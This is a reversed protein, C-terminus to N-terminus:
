RSGLGPSSAGYIHSGEVRVDMVQALPLPFPKFFLLSGREEQECLLLPSSLSSGLRGSGWLAAGLWQMM